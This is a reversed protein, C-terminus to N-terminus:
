FDRRCFRWAGFALVVAEFLPSTGIIWLRSRQRMEGELRTVLRPDDLEIEEEDEAEFGPLFKRADADSILGHELLAITEQTKPLASRALFIRRHWMTWTQAKPRTEELRLRTPGLFPNVEEPALEGGEGPEGPDDVGTDAGAAREALIREAAAEQAAIRRELQEVELTYRERQMLLVVETQNVAFIMLWFVITVLLAAVTSRTLQGVVALVGFLYSFFLVVIPIALFIGFELSRGRIAIVLFSALTFVTVQLAVFLLGSFYKLLYLRLRGIPKSLLLEVSGGSVFDPFISATSILALIIAAWTLWIPAGVAAFVYTYFLRPPVIQANMVDSPFEFWLFTV